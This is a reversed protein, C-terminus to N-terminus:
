RKFEKKVCGVMGSFGRKKIDMVVDNLGHSLVFDSSDTEKIEGSGKIGNIVRNKYV